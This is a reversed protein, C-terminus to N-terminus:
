YMIQEGREECVRVEQFKCQELTLKELVGSDRVAPLDQWLTSQGPTPVPSGRPAGNGTGTGARSRRGAQDM